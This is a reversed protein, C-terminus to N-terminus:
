EEHCELKKNRLINMIIENFMLGSSMLCRPDYNCIDKYKFPYIIPFGTLSITKSPPLFENGFPPFTTRKINPRSQLCGEWKSFRKNIFTCHSKFGYAFEFPKKM